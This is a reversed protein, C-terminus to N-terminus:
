VKITFLDVMTTLTLSDLLKGSIRTKKVKSSSLPTALLLRRM